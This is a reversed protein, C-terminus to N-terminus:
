RRFDGQSFRVRWGYYGGDMQSDVTFEKKVLGLSRWGFFNTEVMGEALILHFGLDVAVNNHSVGPSLTLNPSGLIGEIKTTDFVAKDSSKPDIWIKIFINQTDNEIKGLTSDPYYTPPIVLAEPSKYVQVSPGAGELRIQKSGCAVTLLLLFLVFLFRKM